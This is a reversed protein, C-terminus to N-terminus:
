RVEPKLIEDIAVLDEMPVKLLRAVAFMTEFQRKGVDGTWINAVTARTIALEKSLAEPTKYGRAEALFKIQSEM